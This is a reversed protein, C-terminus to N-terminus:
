MEPLRNRAVVPLDGSCAKLFEVLDLQEEEILRIREFRSDFHPNQFKDSGYWKLVEQLTEFRGDHM